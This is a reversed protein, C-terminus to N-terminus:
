GTVRTYTLNFTGPQVKGFPTVLLNAVGGGNVDTLVVTKKVDQGGIQTEKIATEIDNVPVVNSPGPYFDYGGLPILKIFEELAAQTAAALDIPDYSGQYFVTGTVNLDVGPAAFVLATKPTASSGFVYRDIAAQANAVDTVSATELEGTVYVDFTGAGRPNTSNVVADTIAGAGAVICINRVAADILEFKTLLAWKTKNRLKITPDPEADTGPRAQTDSTVTVGALTTLLITYTNPAKNAAAGAVEAEFLLGSVSGGSPLTVPFVTVGDDILRITPGDPHQIIVDHTGDPALTYPGASAACALSITRQAAVAGFRKNDYFSDAFNTLAEGSSTANLYAGKLFVAVKSVQAWIEASLEVHALGPEGEQWSTATYGVSDLMDVLAQKAEDHLIEVIDSWNVSAM